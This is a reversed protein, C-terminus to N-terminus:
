LLPFGSSDRTLLASELANKSIMITNKSAADKDPHKQSPTYVKLYPLIPFRSFPIDIISM